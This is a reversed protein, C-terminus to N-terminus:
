TCRIVVEALFGICLETVDIQFPPDKLHVLYNRIMNNSSFVTRTGQSELRRRLQQSVGDIFPLFATARYEKFTKTSRRKNKVIRQIFSKSYGNSMIASQIHQKETATICAKTVIISDRDYLCGVVGSNVYEPPHSYFVLYQDTNTPIRYVTTMLHNNIDRHALTDLFAVRNNNKVKMTLHITQQQSNM